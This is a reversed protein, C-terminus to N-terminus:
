CKQLIVILETENRNVLMIEFPFREQLKLVMQIAERQTWVHFHISYGFDILTTKRTKVEADDTINDVLRVWEEFHEDRSFEPGNEYDQVLHEYNTIRRNLDFSYRMDPIALYITGQPRVVRMMNEFALIPNQCHEIFHNAICFDQSESPISALKEGDDIIDVDVLRHSALEPYQRKLESVSMRDVYRVKATKPVSLPSHLAGIEIGAGQIYKASIKRRVDLYGPEGNILTHIKKKLNDLM